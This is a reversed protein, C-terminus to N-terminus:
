KKSRKSRKENEFASEDASGDETEFAAPSNTGKAKKNRQKKNQKTKKSKKKEKANEKAQKEADEEAEAIKQQLCAQQAAQLAAPDAAPAAAVAGSNGVRVTGNRKNIEAKIIGALQPTVEGTVELDHEAQFKSIAVITTPTMEGNATGADYGLTGLDTQVMKTLDDAFAPAASLLLICLLSGTLQRLM